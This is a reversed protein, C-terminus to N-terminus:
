RRALGVSRLFRTWINPRKRAPARRGPTRSAPVAGSAFSASPPPYEGPNTPLDLRTPAAALGDEAGVAVFTGPAASADPESATDPTPAALTPEHPELVQTVSEAPRFEDPATQLDPRTPSTFEDDPYQYERQDAGPSEAPFDPFFAGEPTEEWDPVGPAGPSEENPHSLRLSEPEAPPNLPPPELRGLQRRERGEDSYTWNDFTPPRRSLPDAAEVRRIEPALVPDDATKVQDEYHGALDLEAAADEWLQDMYDTVQGRWENRPAQDPPNERLAEDYKAIGDVCIHYNSRSLRALQYQSQDDVHLGGNVAFEALQASAESSVQGDRIRRLAGGITRKTLTRSWIKTVVKSPDDTRVIVQRALLAIAATRGFDIFEKSLWGPSTARKDLEVAVDASYERAMREFRDQVGPSQPVTDLFDRLAMALLFRAQYWQVDRPVRLLGLFRRREPTDVIANLAQYWSLTEIPVLPKSKLDRALDMAALNIVAATNATDGCAVNYQARANQQHKPSSGAAEWDCGAAFAVFSAWNRTGGFSIKRRRYRTLIIWAAAALALQQVKSQHAAPRQNPLRGVRPAAPFGAFDAAAPFGLKAHDIVTQGQPKGGVQVLTLDVTTASLLKANAISSRSGLWGTALTVIQYLQQMGSTLTSALPDLKNKDQDDYPGAIHLRLRRGGPSQARERALRGLEERTLAHLTVAQTGGPDAGDAATFDQVYLRRRLQRWIGNILAVLVVLCGIIGEPSDILTWVTHWVHLYFPQPTLGLIGRATPDLSNSFAPDNSIVEQLVSVAQTHFGDADLSEALKEAQVATGPPILDAPLTLLPVAHLATVIETGALATMGRALLQGATSLARTATLGARGCALTSQHSTASTYSQSARSYDGAELAQEGAQCPGVSPGAIVAQSQGSVLLLVALFGAVLALRVLM